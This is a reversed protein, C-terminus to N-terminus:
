LLCTCACPFSAPSSAGRGLVPPFARILAAAADRNNKNNCHRVAMNAGVWCCGQCGPLGAWGAAMGDWGLEM